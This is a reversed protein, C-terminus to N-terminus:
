LARNDVRWFFSDLLKGINTVFLLFVEDAEREVAGVPEDVLADNGDAREGSAQNVRAFNKGVGDSIAGGTYDDRMVM